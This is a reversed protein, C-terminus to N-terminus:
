VEVIGHIWQAWQHASGTPLIQHARAVGSPTDWPDATRWEFALDRHLGNRLPIGSSGSRDYAQWADGGKVVTYDYTVGADGSPYRLWTGVPLVAIEAM